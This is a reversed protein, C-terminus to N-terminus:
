EFYHEITYDKAANYFDYEIKKGGVGLVIGIENYSPSIKLMNQDLCIGTLRRYGVRRIKYSFPAKEFVGNRTM